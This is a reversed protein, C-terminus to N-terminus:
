GRALRAAILSTEWVPAFPPSYSLDLQAFDDVGMGNWVAVAVADIRKGSGPGGVIQAGLIRGDGRDTVLKMTMKAVGPYYDPLTDGEVITTVVDFGATRADHANLGTCAIETTGFETIATGLVGEFRASGGAINTGAVRGHKNAHTGLGIWVQRRSVRHHSESCDGVAWIGEVNTARRSDAAIAGSTGIAIGAERAASVNPRVGLCLVVLDAPVPGADTEVSRLRGRSDTAFGSVTTSFRTAVGAAVIAATVHAGMDPDLKAMPRDSREVLTVDLGRGALVSVMELGTYGGGVVVARRPATTRITADIASADPISDITFVGPADIGPLRPRIASAGTALVLHDFAHIQTTGTARDIATVTRADADIATVERNEHVEIGRSRHEAPTRVVLDDVTGVAGSVVYPLGAAAYSTYGGAEFAVIGLSADLRHARAAASM